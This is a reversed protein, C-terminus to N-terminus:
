REAMKVNLCRPCGVTDLAGSALQMKEEVLGKARDYEQTCISPEIMACVGLVSPKLIDLCMWDCVRVSQVEAVQQEKRQQQQSHKGERFFKKSKKSIIDACATRCTFTLADVAFRAMMTSGGSAETDLKTIQMFVSKMENPVEDALEVFDNLYSM